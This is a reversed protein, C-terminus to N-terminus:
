KNRLIVQLDQMFLSQKPKSNPKLQKVDLLSCVKKVDHGCEKM